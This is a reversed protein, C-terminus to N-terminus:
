EELQAMIEDNIVFNGTVHQVDDNDELLDVLRLIKEAKELDTIEMPEKAKWTLRAEEPEQYQKELTTRVDNLASVECIIEHVNEDSDVDDAGAEAAHEFLTDADAVEANYVILGVQDFMFSVSGTEGMNGGSKSFCARIDAASRNKNDTLADIIFAIGGPGYGEYRLEEYNEGEIEGAGKKIATEIKEKPVGAKRATVVASRLRPNFDMDPQGTSAAVMIEKTLKTFLKARKADQAGKRHKINAFKSHGAM